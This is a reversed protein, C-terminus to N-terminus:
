KSLQIMCGIKLNALEEVTIDQYRKKIFVEIKGLRPEEGMRGFCLDENKSLLRKFLHLLSKYEKIVKEQKANLDREFEKIQMDIASDIENSESLLNEIEYFKKYKGSVLERRKENVEQYEKSEEAERFMRGIEKYLEKYALNEAEEDEWEYNDLKEIQKEEYKSIRETLAEFRRSLRKEERCIDKYEEIGEAYKNGYFFAKLENLRNKEELMKKEKWETYTSIDDIESFEGVFYPVSGTEHVYFAYMNNCFYKWYGEDLLIQEQSPIADKSIRFCNCKSM